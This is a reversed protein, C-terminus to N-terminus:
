SSSLSECSAKREKTEEAKHSSLRELASPGEAEEPQEEAGLEAVPSAAAVAEVVPAALLAAAATDAAHVTSGASGEWGAGTM